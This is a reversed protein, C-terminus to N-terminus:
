CEDIQKYTNGCFGCKIYRVVVGDVRLTKYVRSYNSGAIRDQTCLSCAKPAFERPVIHHAEVREDKEAEMRNDRLRKPKSM